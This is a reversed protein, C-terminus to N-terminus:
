DPRVLRRWDPVQNSKLNYRQAVGSVTAVSDRTEAVFRAKLEERWRRRGKVASLVEVAGLFEASPEM